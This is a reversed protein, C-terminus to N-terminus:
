ADIVYPEELSPAWLAGQPHLCELTRTCRCTQLCGGAQATVQLYALVRAACDQFMAGTAAPRDSGRTAAAWGTLLSRGAIKVVHGGLRRRVM